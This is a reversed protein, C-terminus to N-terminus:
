KSANTLEVVVALVWLCTRLGGALLGASSTYIIFAGKNGLRLVFPGFRRVLCATLSALAM